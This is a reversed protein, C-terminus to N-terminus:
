RCHHKRRWTSFSDGCLFCEKCNEDKMWFEKSLLGSRLQKLVTNVAEADGENRAGGQQRRMGQDAHAAEDDTAGHVEQHSGNSAITDATSSETTDTSLSRTLKFGLLHSESIRSIAPQRKLASAPTPGDPVTQKGKQSPGSIKPSASDNSTDKPRIISHQSATTLGNPGASNPTSATFRQNKISADKGPILPKNSLERGVDLGGSKIDGQRRTNGERHNDADRLFVTGDVNVKDGEDGSVTPESNESDSMQPTDLDPAERIAETFASFNSTTSTLKRPDPPGTSITRSVRKGSPDKERAQGSPLFPDRTFIDARAPTNSDDIVHGDSDKFANVTVPVLTPNAAASTAM